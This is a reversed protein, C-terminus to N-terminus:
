AEVAYTVEKGFGFVGITEPGCSAGLIPGMPLVRITRGPLEKNVLSKLNEVEEEKCDAELIWVESTENIADKLLTVIENLSNTRGKVKKIPTQAGNKDAILIPRVGMLNGFFAAAAKVRGCKRLWELSQVTAFENVSKRLSTIREIIEEYSKGERVMKAAEVTLMGEGLTSNLSDIVTIRLSPDEAMMEKAVVEGTKVSASQQVCCAIYIIDYDTGYKAYVDKFETVPVQTTTIREGERMTNFFEKSSYYDWTLTAPYEKGKFLTNMRLYDIDYEDMMEKTLDSCTDTLIKIKKM